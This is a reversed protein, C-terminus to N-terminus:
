LCTRQGCHWCCGRRRGRLPGRAGSAKFVVIGLGGCGDVSCLVLMWGDVLGRWGLRGVDGIGDLMRSFCVFGVRADEGGFDGGARQTRAPCGGQETGVNACLGDHQKSAPFRVGHEAVQADLGGGRGLGLEHKVSSVESKRGTDELPGAERVLSRKFYGLKGSGFVQMVLGACAQDQM